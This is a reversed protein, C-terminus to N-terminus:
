FTILSACKSFSLICQLVILGLTVSLIAYCKWVTKSLLAIVRHLLDSVPNMLLGSKILRLRTCSVFFLLRSIFVCAFLYTSCFHMFLFMCILKSQSDFKRIVSEILTAQPAVHGKRIPMKKIYPTSPFLGGPVRRSACTKFLKQVCQHFTLYLLLLVINEPLVSNGLYEDKFDYNAM